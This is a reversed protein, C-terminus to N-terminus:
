RGGVLLWTETPGIGEVQVLGRVRMQKRLDHDDGPDDGVKEVLSVLRSWM